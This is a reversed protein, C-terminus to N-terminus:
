GIARMTIQAQMTFAINVAGDGVLAPIATGLFPEYDYNALVTIDGGGADSVTIDGATLGPLIPTGSGNITGYVVLNRAGGLLGADIHVVQSQGLLAQGAVYRAGDRVAHTLTNYQMFAFGLETVALMVFLILPLVITFEIMAIGRQRRGTMGPHKKRISRIIM